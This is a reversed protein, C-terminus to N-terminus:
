WCNRILLVKVIISKMPSVVFPIYFIWIFLITVGGVWKRTSTYTRYIVNLMYILHLKCVSETIALIPPSGGLFDKIYNYDGIIRRTYYLLWEVSIHPIIMPVYTRCPRKHIVPNIKMCVHGGIPATRVSEITYSGGALAARPRYVAAPDEATAGAGHPVPAGESTLSGPWTGWTELQRPKHRFRHGESELSKWRKQDETRCAPNANAVPHKDIWSAVKYRMPWSAHFWQPRQPLYSGGSGGLCEYSDHWDSLCILTPPHIERFRRWGPASSITYDTFLSGDTCLSIICWQM